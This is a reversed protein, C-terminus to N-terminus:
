KSIFPTKIQLNVTSATSSISIISNDSTIRNLKNKDKYFCCIFLKLM